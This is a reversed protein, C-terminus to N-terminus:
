AQISTKMTHFEHREFKAAFHYAGRRLVRCRAILQIPTRGDLLFPWEISLEMLAGVSIEHHCAVLVGGSSVNVALGDGCIVSGAVSSRFRVSLDLTYRFKFRREALAPRHSPIAGRRVGPFEIITAGEVSSTPM